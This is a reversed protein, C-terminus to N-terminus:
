ITLLRVSDNKPPYLELPISPSMVYTSNDRNFRFRKEITERESVFFVPSKRWTWIIFNTENGEYKEYLKSADDWLMRIKDDYRYDMISETDKNNKFESKNIIHKM